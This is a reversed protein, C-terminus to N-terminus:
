PELGQPPVLNVLSPGTTGQQPQGPPPGGTDYRLGVLLQDRGPYAIGAVLVGREPRPTDCPVASDAHGPPGKM